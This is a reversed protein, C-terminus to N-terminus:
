QKKLQKEIKEIGKKLGKEAIMAGKLSKPLEDFNAPAHKITIEFVGDQIEKLSKELLAKIEELNQNTPMPSNRLSM